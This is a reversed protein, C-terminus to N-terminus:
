NDVQQQSSNYLVIERDRPGVIGLPREGLIIFKGIIMRSPSYLLLVEIIKHKNFKDFGLCFSMKLCTPPACDGYIPYNTTGYYTHNSFIASRFNIDIHLYM